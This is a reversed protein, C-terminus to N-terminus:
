VNKGELINLTNKQHKIVELMKIMQQQLDNIQVFLTLVEELTLTLEIKGEKEAKKTKKEISKAVKRYEETVM